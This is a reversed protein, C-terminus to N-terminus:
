LSTTTPPSLKYATPADPLLTQAIFLDVLNRPRVPRAFRGPQNILSRIDEIDQRTNKVSIRSELM